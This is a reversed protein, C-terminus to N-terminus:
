LIQQKILGCHRMTSSSLEKNKVLWLATNKNQAMSSGGCGFHQKKNKVFWLAMSKNPVTSSGGAASTSNRTKFRFRTEPTLLV